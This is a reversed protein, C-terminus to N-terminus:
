PSGPRRPDCRKLAAFPFKIPAQDSGLQLGPLGQGSRIATVAEGHLMAQKRDLASRKVKTQRVPSATQSHFSLGFSRLSVVNM